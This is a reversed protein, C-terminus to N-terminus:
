PFLPVFLYAVHVVFFVTLFFYLSMMVQYLLIILYHVFSLSRRHSAKRRKILFSVDFLFCYKM